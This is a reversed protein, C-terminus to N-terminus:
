HRQVGDYLHKVHIVCDKMEAKGFFIDEALAFCNPAGCASCDLGPLRDRIDQIKRIKELARVMNGDLQMVQKPQLPKIPFGSNGSRKLLEDTDFRSGCGERVLNRIKGGAICPNEVNLSDGVQGNIGCHLVIYDYGELQQNEMRSLVDMVNGVGTVSLTKLGSEGAKEAELDTLALSLGEPYLDVDRRDSVLDETRGRVARYIERFSIVGDHLNPYLGDPRRVESIQSVCSAILFVGVDEPACDKERCVLDRYYGGIINLPHEVCAVHPLLSPFRAQMLRLVAPNGSIVPRIGPNKQIYEVILSTKLNALMAEEAIYDFGIQYLAKKSAAYDIADPFQVPYSAPIVAVTYPYGYITSLPTTNEQIAEEPCAEICRGCNICREENIRVVNERVRLAETPCIRVCRMCGTCHEREITISLTVNNLAKIDM